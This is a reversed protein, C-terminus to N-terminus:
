AQCAKGTFAITTSGQEPWYYPFCKTELRQGIQLALGCRLRAKAPSFLRASSIDRTLVQTLQVVTLGYRTMAHAQVILAERVSGAHYGEMAVVGMMDVLLGTLDQIEILMYQALLTLCKLM